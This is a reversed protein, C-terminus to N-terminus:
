DDGTRGGAPREQPPAPTAAAAQRYRTHMEELVPRRDEPATRLARGVAKLAEDFRGTEAHGAALVELASADDPDGEKLLGEAIAVASAGDRVAPDHSSSELWARLFRAGRDYPWEVLGQKLIKHAL